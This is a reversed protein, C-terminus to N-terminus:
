HYSVLSKKRRENLKENINHAGGGLFSKPGRVLHGDALVSTLPTVVSYIYPYRLFLALTDAREAPAYVVVKYTITSTFPKAHVGGGSWMGRM